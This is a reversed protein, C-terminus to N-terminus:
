KSLKERKADCVSRTNWSNTIRKSRRVVRASALHFFFAFCEWKTRFFEEIVDNEIIESCSFDHDRVHNENSVNPINCCDCPYLENLTYIGEDCEWEIFSAIMWRYLEEKWIFIFMAFFTMRQININKKYNSCFYRCNERKMWNTINMKWTCWLHLMKELNNNRRNTIHFMFLTRSINTILTAVSISLM